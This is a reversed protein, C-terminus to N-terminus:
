MEGYHHPKVYYDDAGLDLAKQLDAPMGSGTLMVIAIANLDPRTKLWELLDFGGMGHMKLDVLLLMPLPYERRDTYPEEGSLYRIAEEASAVSFIECGPCTKVFVRKILFLDDADSEVILVRPQITM